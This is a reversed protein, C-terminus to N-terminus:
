SMMRPPVNPQAENQKPVPATIMSSRHCPCILDEDDLHLCLCGYETDDCDFCPGKITRTETQHPTRQCECAGTQKCDECGVGSCCPCEGASDCETCRMYRKSGHGQCSYCRTDFSVGDDITGTGDCAQCEDWEEYTAM